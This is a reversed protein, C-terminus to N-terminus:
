TTFNSLFYTQSIDNMKDIRVFLSFNENWVFQLLNMWSNDFSFWLIEGCKSTVFNVLNTLLFATSLLDTKKM